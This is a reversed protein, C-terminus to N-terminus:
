SCLFCSTLTQENIAEKRGQAMPIDPPPASVATCEGKHPYVALALTLRFITASPHYIKLMEKNLSTIMNKVAVPEARPTEPCVPHTM